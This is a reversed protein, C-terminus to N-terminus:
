LGIPGTVPIAKDKKSGIIPTETIECAGNPSSVQVYEPHNLVFIL